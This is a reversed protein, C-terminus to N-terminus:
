VEQKLSSVEYNVDSKDVLNEVIFQLYRSVVRDEKAEPKWTGTMLQAYEDSASLVWDDVFQIAKGKARETVGCVLAAPLTALQRNLFSADIGRVDLPNIRSKVCWLALEDKLEQTVLAEPRTDEEAKRPGNGHMLARLSVSPAGVDKTLVDKVAKAVREASVLYHTDRSLAAVERVESALAEAHNALLAKANELTCAYAEYSGYSRSIIVHQGQDKLM